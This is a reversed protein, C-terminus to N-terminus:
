KLTLSFIILGTSEMLMCEKTFKRKYLILGKTLFCRLMSNWLPIYSMRYSCSYHNPCFCQLGPLYIWICLLHFSGRRLHSCEICVVQWLYSAIHIGELIIGYQLSLMVVSHASLLHWSASPLDSVWFHTKNLSGMCLKTGAAVAVKNMLWNTFVSHNPFPQIIDISCFM